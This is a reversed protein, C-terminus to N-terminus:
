NQKTKKKGITRRFEIWVECMMPIDLCHCEIPRPPGKRKRTCESFSPYPTCIKKCDTKPRPKGCKAPDRAPKCGPLIFRPCKRKPYSKCPLLNTPQPKCEEEATKRKHSRRQFTPPIINDACCIKKRAIRMKPCEVWTQTYKRKAKDSAKYYLDDFRPQIDPCPDLCCEPNFWMTKPKKMSKKLRTGDKSCQARYNITSKGRVNATQAQAIIPASLIAKSMLQRGGYALSRGCLASVFM